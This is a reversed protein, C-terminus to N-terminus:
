GRLGVGEYCRQRSGDTRPQAVRLGPVAARLDRGFTQATGAWARGQLTCWSQWKGYLTATEVSQGPGIICHDRLFAGIPSGLDELEQAVELSSAPPVFYGRQMLRHRGDLAWNLISPLEAILRSELGLDEQGYFSKTMVLTIFRSALAGSADALRPLENTMILFRTPLRGTWAPKYKRDITLGDEGSISLLREAIFQQDAKGGLRADSIIALPRNILPALGFNTGLGALTPAAVNNRGLLATLVRAITGKGSRKPGVVLFLKQQSTDWTLFYGFMEQLTGIADPDNGWVSGLFSLWATPLPAKPEYAFALASHTFFRPTHAMLRRSRLHLLGNQCSVCEIAPPHPGDELWAPAAFSAPLYAVAKLADILENVRRTTPTFPVLPGSNSEREASDLFRWVESRVADSEVEAFHTGTYGYFSGGFHHLTRVGSATHKLEILALASNWPTGPDLILDDPELIADDRELVTRGQQIATPGTCDTVQNKGVVQLV